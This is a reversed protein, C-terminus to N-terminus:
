PGRRRGKSADEGRPQLHHSDRLEHDEPSGYAGYATAIDQGNAAVPSAAGISTSPAMYALNASLTIFTGASAASAGSPGVWVITPIKADLTQTIRQMADLAGGLTNLQIIVAAAGDMEARNVAGAIHDAMVDDVVGSTPVVVVEPGSPAQGGPLATPTPLPAIIAAPDSAAPRVNGILLLFAGAVAITVGLRGATAVTRRLSFASSARAVLGTPRVPALQVTWPLDATEDPLAPTRSMQALRKLRQDM